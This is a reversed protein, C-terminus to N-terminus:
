LLFLPRIRRSRLRSRLTNQGNLYIHGEAGLSKIVERLIDKHDFAITDDPANLLDQLPYFRATAADDGARVEADSPVLVRYVISIIHKRPDRQPAGAVTVLVPDRGDIGCEEKLERLCGDKPDENYDVFGGPFAIRGQYPPHGRTIMLVDHLGDVRPRLVVADTTVSPIYYGATKPPYPRGFKDLESEMKWTFLRQVIAKLEASRAPKLINM